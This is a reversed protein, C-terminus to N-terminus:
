LNSFYIREYVDALKSRRLSKWIVMRRAKNELYAPAKCSADKGALGYYQMGHWTDIYLSAYNLSSRSVSRDM